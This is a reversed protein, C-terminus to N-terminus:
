VWMLGVGVEGGSPSAFSIHILPTALRDPNSWTTGVDLNRAFRACALCDRGPEPRTLTRFGKQTTEESPRPEMATQEPDLDKLDKM